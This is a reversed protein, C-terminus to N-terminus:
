NVRDWRSAAERSVKSDTSSTYLCWLLSSSFYCGVELGTPEGLLWKRVSGTAIPVVKIRKMHITVWQSMSVAAGGGRRRQRRWGM